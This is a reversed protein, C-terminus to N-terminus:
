PEQGLLLRLVANAQHHACVGVRPAMLGQSPMAETEFDGCVYLWKMVAKTVIQNASGYGALGSAAVLPIGPFMKLFCETLMAKEEARDLAEVMVDVGDFLTSVNEKNIKINHAEIDIVPNIRKITETLAETKPMGIQDMFYYQRNLNSPEVVDYDVLILRGVGTRALAVAVMSGLGGLGAIGVTARKVKEHVGPTHRATLLAHFEEKSPMRGKKIFVVRNGEKLIVDDTVPFGDVILVDASPDFRDRLRYLSTGEDVELPRENLFIKMKLQEYIVYFKAPLPPTSGDFFAAKLAAKGFTLLSETLRAM